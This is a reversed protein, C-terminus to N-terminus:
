LWSFKEALTDFAPVCDTPRELEISAPRLEGLRGDDRSRGVM